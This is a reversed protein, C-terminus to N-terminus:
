RRVTGDRGRRCMLYVLSESAMTYQIMVGGALIVDAVGVKSRETRLDHGGRSVLSKRVNRISM